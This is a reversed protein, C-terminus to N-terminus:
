LVSSGVWMPEPRRQVFPTPCPGHLAAPKLDCRATMGTVTRLFCAALGAQLLALAARGLGGLPHSEARHHNLSRGMATSSVYCVDLFSLNSLFVPMPMRLHSDM